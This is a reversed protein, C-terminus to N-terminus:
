GVCPRYLALHGFQRLAVASVKIGTSYEGSHTAEHQKLLGSNWVFLNLVVSCYDAMVSQATSHWFMIRNYIRNMYM